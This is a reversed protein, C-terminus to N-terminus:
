KQADLVARVTELLDALQYPKGIYGNAGAEMSKGVQDKSSYGSAIIVKIAQDIRRVEQLCKYGGMGPMGLDMIILDINGYRDKLLELAEEGTAATLVKYGFKILAQQAFGRIAAEDDVLLIAENGRPIPKTEVCEVGKVKHQVIAPFYIKFTTGQGVESCCTIYGGHSKVIGYVSALGLGTGKGLEKTTYFPDFINNITEQDMGHGTDSVTLLIYQGPQANLRLKANDDDLTANQIEFLLKGGDPMADAANTGLNLLMQEIQIPDANIPWLRTGSIVQIEIMKPITRELMKKAKEVEGQLELPRKTSDAKRSFLLLQRVLDSARFGADQIAKLSNFEPDNDPKDMLLLQTYGNIAQLLNNFDHSIGGALTGIAEMKAAQQLQAQLQQKEEEALKHDSIDQITGMIVPENNGDDKSFGKLDVWRRNGKGTIIEAEMSFSRGESMCGTLAERVNTLYDPCYYKLGEELGPRYSRPAEIIDYVGDTWKLEDTQPNAKWGGLRAAQQTEQLFLESERLAEEARLRDSIDLMIEVAGTILGNDDIVPTIFLDSYMGTLKAEELTCRRIFTKGEALVQTVGCEPCVTDRKKWTLYCKGGIVDDKSNYGTAEILQRSANTINFNSDVANLMGPFAELIASIRAESGRLELEVRKNETIDQHVGLCRIPAGSEDFEFEGSSRMIREEGDPRVIRFEMSWVRGSEIMKGIEIRIRERDDPHILQNSIDTLNGTFTDKDLGHIEYMNPSWFLSDNRLDWIFSGMFAIEQSHALLAESEKLAEEARKRETIDFFVTSFMGKAPRSITFELYRQIPEFFTEFHAPKGTETVQVLTDLFPAEGTGYIESGLSSRAKDREIGMIREYAPNVDLIRYDVAKGNDYILEDICSGAALSEFLTRFREESKHLKEETRKLKDIDQGVILATPKGDITIAVSSSISWVTEGNRKIIKMELPPNDKGDTINNMRELVKEHMEPAITELAKMGAFEDFSSYGLLRANAPNGFVYNGDQVLSISMPASYILKKFRSESERLAEEALKRETIDTGISLVAYQDQWEIAKAFIELPFTSGDKRYHVVEFRAQGTEAIRHFRENLLAESEPLDVDHLNIDLFEKEDDYGHLSITHANAYLFRGETNHITISAPAEDLMRGLLAIREERQRRETLDRGFCVFRGGYEGLWSASIELPRLSGDRCRHQTEFLESGRAIIRQIRAVTENHSEHADLESISKGIIEERAYGTMLCYANNVDLLTGARDLAWFGDASTEIILRLYRESERLSKEAQKRETVDRAVSIICPMGCYQITRSHIEVPLTSGDKRRHTAEFFQQKNLSIAQMRVSVQRAFEPEDIDVPSMTLMEERSYGLRKCAVDNVELFRGEMDHIFVADSIESFINRFKEESERLAAESQKRDTIDRVTGWLYDIDGDLRKVVYSRLEVPFVGGDKRIYEKEYLGSYGHRLLRNEWIEEAEWARWREPTILYFDQMSRLEDLSYGLMDCYAQNADIIRGATDVVVFGDRSKEFIQLYRGQSEVLRREMEIKHLAFALDGAVETFLEQDEESYAYNNPVSVALIGMTKENHALRRALGAKGAYDSSLPCDLCHVKPNDMVITENIALARRMCSPYKGESISERIVEFGGNCGSAATRPCLPDNDDLLAIWASFYGMTETLNKCAREILRSRDREQVILQNVKRIALLVRNIHDLRENVRDIERTKNNIELRAEQLNTVDSVIIMLEDDTLTDKNPQIPRPRAEIQAHFPASGKRKIRVIIQKEVPNRFFTRFRALFISSDEALIADAFPRGRFDEDQRNVMIRWTNNVQRIIGSSDLVVYGVPAHEYLAAFRDRTEQLALQTELLEENQLELEAQHVALEHALEKITKLDAQEVVDASEALLAEARRRLEDATKNRESLM